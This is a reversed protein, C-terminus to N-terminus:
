GEERSSPRKLLMASALARLTGAMTMISPPFRWLSPEGSRLTELLCSSHSAGTTHAISKPVVKKPYAYAYVLSGSRYKSDMHSSRIDQAWKAGARRETNCNRWQCTHRTESSIMDLSGQLFLVLKSRPWCAAKGKPELARM